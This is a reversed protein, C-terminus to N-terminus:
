RPPRRWAPYRWGPSRALVHGPGAMRRAVGHRVDVVRDLAVLGRQEEDVGAALGLQQELFEPADVVVIQRDRQMVAREIDALPAPDLLRHLGVAQAGDDGGRREIEADVPAIDIEDDMDARRLACAPKGLADAAGVVAHVLRRM